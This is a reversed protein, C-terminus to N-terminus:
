GANYLGPDETYDEFDDLTIYDQTQELHADVFCPDADINGIGWNITSTGDKYIGDNGDKIDSYNADITSYFSLAIENGALGATNGWLICNTVRASSHNFNFM